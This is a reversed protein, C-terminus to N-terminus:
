INKSDDSVCQTGKGHGVGGKETKILLLHEGEEEKANVSRRGMEAALM